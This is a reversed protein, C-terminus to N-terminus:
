GPSLTEQLFEEPLIVGQTVDVLDDAFVQGTRRPSERESEFADGGFVAHARVDFARAHSPMPLLHLVLIVLPFDGRSSLCFLIRQLSEQIGSRHSM